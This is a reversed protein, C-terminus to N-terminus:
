FVYQLCLHIMSSTKMWECAEQRRNMCTCRSCDECVVGVVVVFEFVCPAPGIRLLHKGCFRWGSIFDNLTAYETIIYETSPIYQIQIQDRILGPSSFVAPRKPSTRILEATNRLSEGRVVEWHRQIEQTPYLGPRQLPHSGSAVSFSPSAHLWVLEHFLEHLVSATCLPGPRGMSIGQLGSLSLSLSTQTHNVLCIIFSLLLMNSSNPLVKFSVWVILAFVNM